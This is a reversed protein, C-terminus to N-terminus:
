SGYKLTNFTIEHDYVTAVPKIWGHRICENILDRYNEPCRQSIEFGARHAIMMGDSLVFNPDGARITRFKTETVTYNM